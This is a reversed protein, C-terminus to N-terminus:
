AGLNVASEVRKKDELITIIAAAQPMVLLSIRAALRVM